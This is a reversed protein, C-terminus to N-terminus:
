KWLERLSVTIGMHHEVGMGAVLRLFKILQSSAVAEASAALLSLNNLM